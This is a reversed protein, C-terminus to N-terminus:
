LVNVTAVEPFIKHVREKKCLAFSSGHWQTTRITEGASIENWQTNQKKRNRERKKTKKTSKVVQKPLLYTQWYKLYLM